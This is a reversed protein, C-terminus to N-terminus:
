PAGSGDATGAAEGGAVPSAGGGGEDELRQRWLVKWHGEDDKKMRYRVRSEQAEDRSIEQESGVALVRIDWVEFTRVYADGIQFLDLDEIALEKQDAAIRRGDNAMRAINNEVSAVERPMAVEALVSPDAFAYAQSLQRGYTELTALIEARDAAVRQPSPSCAGLVAALAAALVLLAAPLARGAARSPRDLPSRHPM